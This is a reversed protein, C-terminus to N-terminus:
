PFIRIIESANTTIVSMLVAKISYPKPHPICPTTEVVSDYVCVNGCVSRCGHLSFACLSPELDGESM